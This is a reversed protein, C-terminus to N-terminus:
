GIFHFRCTMGADRDGLIAQYSPSNYWALVRDRNEFRIIAGNKLGAEGALQTWGGAAIFEGGFERIIPGAAKSYRDKAVADKVDMEVVVFAAM